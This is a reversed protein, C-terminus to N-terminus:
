DDRRRRVLLAVVGLGALLMAYTEPEPVPTAVINGGYSASSGTVGSGSVILQYMGAPLTTSGALVQTTVSVPPASSTFSSLNLNVGNLTAAFDEIGGISTSGFTIEVNTASAAVISPTAFNFSYIHTFAGTVTSSFSASPNLLGLDTDAAAIGHFSSAALVAAAIYSLKM